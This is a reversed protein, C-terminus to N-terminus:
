GNLVKWLPTSRKYGHVTHAYSISITLSEPVTFMENSFTVGSPSENIMPIYTPTYDNSRYLGIDLDHTWEPYLHTFKSHIKTNIYELTIMEENM